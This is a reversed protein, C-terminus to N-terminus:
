RKLEKGHCEWAHPIFGHKVNERSMGRRWIEADKIIEADWNRGEVIWKRGVEPVYLVPEPDVAIWRESMLRIWKVEEGCIRCYNGGRTKETLPM